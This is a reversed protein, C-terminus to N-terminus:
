RDRRADLPADFCLLRWAAAITLMLPATAVGATAADDTAVAVFIEFLAVIQYGVILRLLRTTKDPGLQPLRPLVRADLDNLRQIVGM